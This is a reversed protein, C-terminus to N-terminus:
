IEYAATPPTFSVGQYAAIGEIYRFEDMYTKSHGGSGGGWLSGLRFNSSSTPHIATTISTGIGWTVVNGNIYGYLNDGYREIAVHQWAGTTFVVSTTQYTIDSGSGGNTSYNFILHGSSSTAIYFSRNSGSPYYRSVLGRTQGAYDVPWAWFDFTFDDSGLIFADNAPIQVENEYVYTFRVSHSGFVKGTWYLEEDTWTPTVLGKADVIDNDFHLLITSEPPITRKRLSPLMAALSATNGM